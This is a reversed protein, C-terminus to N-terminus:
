DEKCYDNKAQNIAKVLANLLISDKKIEDFKLGLADLAPEIEWTYTYEHNHLEYLFASFAFDPEQMLEKFRRDNENTMEFLKDGDSKRIYGGAGISFIEKTTAGLKLLGQKFQEESFAFFMPFNSIEKEREAKFQLYDM